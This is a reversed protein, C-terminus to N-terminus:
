RSETTPSLGRRAQRLAMTSTFAGRAPDYIEASNLLSFPAGYSLASRGKSPAFNYGGVILVSGDRLTVASADNRYENMSKNCKSTPGDFRGAVCSFSGRTPEYIEATGLINNIGNGGAILVQGNTLLVAVHEYRSATMDTGAGAFAEATLRFKGTASDYLEATTLIHDQSDIGGTILVQGNKLLTARHGSRPVSM